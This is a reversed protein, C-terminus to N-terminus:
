QRHQVAAFRFLLNEYSNIVRDKLPESLGLEDLPRAPRLLAPEIRSHKGSEIPDGGGGRRSAEPSIYSNALPPDFGLRTSIDALARDPDAMLDGHILGIRSAPPFRDWLLALADLRSAFYAGAKEHTNYEKRGLHAYLKTISRITPEPERLIFIARADFFPPPARNDHRSHLIKDFHYTADRNWGSRRMHNIALRGLAGRGDYRVHTEGYGSVDSRSCIINSLATSGCRMHALVFICNRYSLRDDMRALAWGSVNKILDRSSTM